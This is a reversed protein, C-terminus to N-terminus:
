EMELDNDLEEDYEEQFQASTEINFKMKEYMMPDKEIVIGYRDSNLCAIALNGSGAFQDLIVEYPNSIYQIIQEYLEVPKEAEIIKENRSKPQYNFDTPLMGHTGSMYYVALGHEDLINAVEESNMGKVDIDNERAVQLNKKQDLRLARPKGKSFIMVDEVNTSKRGTNAKFTGKVWPVKSFYQFGVEKALKKVEYLYEYNIESEEPLFEVLFSGEKLVRMKEQFDKKEYKFLEYKAFNRNGGKLQTKLGYPHDTIIGDISDDEIMSLDRGDGNILLCATEKGQIQSSVKYVGRTVKEFIGKEVGEYIRARISEDNVKMNKVKKIVDRAESITFSPDEMFYDFLNMQITGTM